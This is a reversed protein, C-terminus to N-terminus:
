YFVLVCFYYKNLILTLRQLDQHKFVCKTGLILSKILLYFFKFAVNTTILLILNLVSLPNTITNFQQETVTKNILHLLEWFFNMLTVVWDGSCLTINMNTSKYRVMLNQIEGETRPYM